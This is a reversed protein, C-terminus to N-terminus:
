VKSRDRARTARSPRFHASGRRGPRCHVAGAAERWELVNTAKEAAKAAAKNEKLPARSIRVAM